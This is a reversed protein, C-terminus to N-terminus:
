GEKVSVHPFTWNIQFIDAVAAMDGRAVWYAVEIIKEAPVWGIVDDDQGEIRHFEGDPRIIAIEANSCVARGKEENTTHCYQGMGIVISISYGNPFKFTTNSPDSRMTISM